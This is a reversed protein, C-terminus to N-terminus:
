FVGSTSRLKSQGHFLTIQVTAGILNDPPNISNRTKEAAPVRAIFLNEQNQKMLRVFYSERDIYPANLM